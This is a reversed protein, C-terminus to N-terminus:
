WGLKKARELISKRAEQRRKKNHYCKARATSAILAVCDKDQAQYSAYGGM